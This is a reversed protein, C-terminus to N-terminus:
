NNCFLFNILYVGKTLMFFSVYCDINPIITSKHLFRVFLTLKNRQAYLILKPQAHLTMGAQVIRGTCQVTKMEEAIM